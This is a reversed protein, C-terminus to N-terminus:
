NSLGALEELKAYMKQQEEEYEKKLEEPMTGDGYSKVRNTVYNGIDQKISPYVVRKFEAASIGFGDAKVRGEYEWEQGSYKKTETNYKWTEMSLTGNASLITFSYDKSYSNMIKEINAEADRLAQEDEQVNKQYEEEGLKAAEEMMKQYAEKEKKTWKSYDKNYSPVIQFTVSKEKLTGDPFYEVNEKREIRFTVPEDSKIMEVPAEEAPEEVEESPTEAGEEVPKAQTPTTAPALMGLNQKVNQDLMYNSVAIPTAVATGVVAVTTVATAVAHAKIFVLIAKFM